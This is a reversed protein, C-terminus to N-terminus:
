PPLIVAVPVTHSPISRSDTANSIKFGHFDMRVMWSRLTVKDRRIYMLFVDELIRIDLEMCMHWGHSGIKQAHGRVSVLRREEWEVSASKCNTSRQTIDM